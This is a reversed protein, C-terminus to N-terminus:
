YGYRSRYRVDGPSRKSVKKGQKWGAEAESYNAGPKKVVPIDSVRSPVGNEDRPSDMNYLVGGVWELRGSNSKSAKRKLAKRRAIHDQYTGRKGNPMNGEQLYKNCALGLDFFGREFQRPM